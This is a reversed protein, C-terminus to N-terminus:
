GAILAWCAIASGITTWYGYQEYIAAAKSAEQEISGLDEIQPDSANRVLAWAPPDAIDQACVLGLVADGMEVAHAQPEYARLGYHDEADDFAFFDTTLVDVPAAVTSAVIQPRRAAAPLQSENAAMLTSQALTFHSSGAGAPHTDSFASKAFPAERFTKQCDFRVRKSVVVDGLVTDAGIGGATGTSIVLSAGSEEIIQKWLTRVPLKSGDQSLHLESKMCIVTRGGITCLAYLGLCDSDLAPAGHRIMPKFVSEFNHRYRYWEATTHGPTLVDALAQAEAVTWTVVLFDAKPLPGEAPPPSPPEVPTPTLGSPWPIPALQERPHRALPESFAYTSPKGPDFLLVHRALPAGTRDSVLAAADTAAM